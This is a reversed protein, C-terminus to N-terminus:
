KFIGKVSASQGATVLRYFYVGPAAHVGSNSGGDWTVTYEGQPQTVDVLIKVLSGSADYVKLSVHGTTPVSYNVTTSLASTVKISVPLVSPSTEEIGEYNRRTDKEKLYM